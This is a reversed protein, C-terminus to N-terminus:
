WIGIANVKLFAMPLIQTHSGSLNNGHVSNVDSIKSAPESLALSGSQQPHRLAGNTFGNTNATVDIDRRV